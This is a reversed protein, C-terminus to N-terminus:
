QPIGGLIHWAEAVLPPVGGILVGQAYQWAAVSLSFSADPEGIQHKKFAEWDKKALAAVAGFILIVENRWFPHLAFWGILREEM